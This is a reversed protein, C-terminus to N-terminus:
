GIGKVEEEYIFREVDMVSVFGNIRNLSIGV